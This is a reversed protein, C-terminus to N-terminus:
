GEATLHQFVQSQLHWERVAANLLWAEGDTFRQDVEAVALCLSLVQERLPPSTIEALLARLTDADVRCADGWAMDPHSALLDECLGHMVGQWEEPSLGLRREGPLAEVAAVERRCLHGDALMALAVIRAAAQPSNTPYSRM